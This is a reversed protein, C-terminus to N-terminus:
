EDRTYILGNVVPLGAALFSAVALDRGDAKPPVPYLLSFVLKLNSVASSQLEM